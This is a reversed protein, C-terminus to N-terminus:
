AAQAAAQCLLTRIADLANNTPVSRTTCVFVAAALAQTSPARAQQAPIAAPTAAECM